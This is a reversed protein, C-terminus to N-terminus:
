RRMRAFGILGLLVVLLSTPEPVSSVGDSSTFKNANWAIFDGGDVTGDGNYDGFDWQLSSGFKNANWAIFDAGDVTGDLNADGLKYPSGFGNETAATALWADRDLLDISNDGNLDYIENGTSPIGGAIPGVGLMLNLDDIDCDNDSDFDCVGPVFYDITITSDALYMGDPSLGGDDFSEFLTMAFTGGAAIFSLDVDVTGDGDLDIMTLDEIGGSDYRTTGPSDDGLGPALTVAGDFDIEAESRWSPDFSDVHLDWGIGLVTADTGGTMLDVNIVTDPGVSGGTPNGGIEVTACNFLASGCFDGEQPNGSFTPPKTPTKTTNIVVQQRFQAMVNSPSLAIGVAVVTLIVFAYHLKMFLRGQSEFRAATTQFTIPPRKISADRDNARSPVYMKSDDFEM